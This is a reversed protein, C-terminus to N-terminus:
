KNLLRCGIGVILWICRYQVLRPISTFKYNRVIKKQTNGITPQTITSGINELMFRPDKNEALWSRCKDRLKRATSLSLDPYKGLLLRELKTDRGGLRYRYYWTLNGSTQARIALGDGDAVWSEKEVSKKLLAKLKNDNLKNVSM